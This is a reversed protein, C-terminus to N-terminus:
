KIELRSKRGLLLGEFLAATQVNPGSKRQRGGKQSSFM